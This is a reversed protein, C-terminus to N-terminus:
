FVTFKRVIGAVGKGNVKVIYIGRELEPLLVKQGVTGTTEVWKRAIRQGRLNVVEITLRDGKPWNLSLSCSGTKLMSFVVSQANTVPRATVIATTADNFIPVNCFTLAAIDNTGWLLNSGSWSRSDLYTIKTATSAANLTLTLINDSLVGSAVKGSLSDLYFQSTLATSWKVPQDFELAIATKATSTYYARKLDPPTISVTSKKGYNDREVLPTMLSVFEDYGAQSSHCGVGAKIGLTTMIGMNSYHYPLTRQVERLINDQGGAGAQSCGNPWIQFIYYHKINPYDQKWAASMDIFYKLYTKWGWIGTPGDSGQDAEGQHWLVGRISHTLKARQIRTLLRGYITSTDTPNAENRQHLDIRTGGVSGNILCIPVSYTTVLRRAFELPWYGVQAIGGNAKWVANAWTSGPENGGANGYTRIWESTPPAFNAPASEVTTGDANSQGEIIYADGCLANTVTNLLTETSGTKSGFEIKYEVLGPGIKPAFSYAGAVLTQAVRKYLNTGAYIKMYVSDPATALTGKYYISCSDHDDRAYFQNNVPKENADPKRVAWADSALETVAIDVSHTVPVGGNSITLTVTMKGSGQSRTLTLKGPTITKVVAVNAVDWAYTLAGVGQTQMASLNSIQSAVDISDRGNWTPPSVLSFVPDSQAETINVTVAQTKMGSPYLARFELVVTKDGSVRGVPYNISQRDVAIIKETGAEKLVWYTKQAGGASATIATSGGENVTVSTPTVSFTNGEPVLLGALSQLPNQNAYCMKIWDKSRGASEFRVEDLAGQFPGRAGGHNGVVVATPSPTALTGIPAEKDLVGDMYFRINNGSISLAVHHWQNLPVLTNSAPDPGYIHFKFMGLGTMTMISLGLSVNDQGWGGISASAWNTGEFSSGHIWASLTRDQNGSPMCTVKGDSLGGPQRIEMGMTTGFLRAGGIMGAQSTTSNNAGDLNNQTADEINDGFHWAGAFGNATDFVAAGNSASTAASNGWYMKIAQRSNGTITPIRVWISAKGNAADWEEIQFPLATGSPTSFRIDAGGTSAQSFKFFEKDLRVLLPFGTESASAPINAGDPTTIIFLSDSYTWGTYQAFANGVLAAAALIM